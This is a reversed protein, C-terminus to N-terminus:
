LNVESSGAPTQLVFLSEPLSPNAEPESLTVELSEEASPVEVGIHTPVAVGGVSRYEGFNARWLLAGDADLEQVEAPLLPEGGFLVVQAGGETEQRLRLLGTSAEAFVSASRVVRQPPGGLLVDVVDAVHLDLATYRALNEPTAAGRYVRNEERVYAALDGQATALVFAVGFPSFVEVRLRDPREAMLFQRAKGSREPSSVAISAESRLSHLAERREALLRQLDAATLAPLGPGAPKLTACGGALLAVLLLSGARYLRSGHMM